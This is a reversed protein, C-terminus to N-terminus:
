HFEGEYWIAKGDIETIGIFGSDTLWSHYLHLVGNLPNMAYWIPCGANSSDVPIVKWVQDSFVIKRFSYGGSKLLYLESIGNIPYHYIRYSSKNARAMEENFYNSIFISDNTIKQVVGFTTTNNDKFKLHYCAKEEILWSKADQKEQSIEIGLSKTSICNEKISDNLNRVMMKSRELDVVNNEHEQFMRLITFQEVSDLTIKIWKDKPNWVNYKIAEILSDKLKISHLIIEVIKDNKLKVSLITNINCQLIVRKGDENTCPIRYSPTADSFYHTFDEKSLTYIKKAELRFCLLIFFLLLIKKETIM